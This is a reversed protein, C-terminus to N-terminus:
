GAKKIWTSWNDKAYNYNSVMLANAPQVYVSSTVGEIRHGAGDYMTVSGARVDSVLNMGSQPLMQALGLNKRLGTANVSVFMKAYKNLSFKSAARVFEYQSTTNETTAYPSNVNAYKSFTEAFDDSAMMRLVLEAIDKTPSDKTIFAAHDM